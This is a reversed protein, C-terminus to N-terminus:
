LLLVVTLRIQQTMPKSHHQISLPFFSFSLSCLAFYAILSSRFHGTNYCYIWYADDLCLGELLRVMEWRWEVAQPRFILPKADLSFYLRIQSRHAWDSGRDWPLFLEMRNWFVDFGFLM